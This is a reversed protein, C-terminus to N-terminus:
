IRDNIFNTISDAAEQGEPCHGEEGYFEVVGQTSLAATKQMDEASAVMDGSTNIVLLPTNMRPKGDFYGKTKLSLPVTLEGFSDLKTIDAGIRQGFSQSTMLPLKPFLFPKTLVGDVVACRAVIAKLEPNDIAFEMLPIGAGSQSLVAIRTNDIRDDNKVFALAADHAETEKGLELIINNNLGAGPMDFTLVATGNNVTDILSSHHEVLAKDVGGTWLVVPAKKTGKPLHLIGTIYAPSISKDALPLKVKEVNERRLTAAQIYADVSKNLATLENAQHLNPYSAILWFTSAKQYLAAAAIGTVQKAQLNFREAEKAFEFTWHGQTNENTADRLKKGADIRTLVAAIESETVGMEVWSDLRLERYWNEQGEVILEAGRFNQHGEINTATNSVIDISTEAATSSTGFASLSAAIFLALLPKKM